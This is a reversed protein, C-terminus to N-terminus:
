RVALTRHPSRQHIHLQFSVAEAAEGGKGRTRPYIWELIFMRQRMPVHSM